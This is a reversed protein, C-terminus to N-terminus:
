PQARGRAAAFALGAALRRAASRSGAARFDDRQQRGGVRFLALGVGSKALDAVFELLAAGRQDTGVKIAHDSALDGRDLAEVVRGRQLRM